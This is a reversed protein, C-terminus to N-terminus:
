MYVSRCVEWEVKAMSGKNQTRQRKLNRSRITVCGYERGRCDQTVMSESGFYVEASWAWENLVVACM